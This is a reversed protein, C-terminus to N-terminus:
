AQSLWRWKDKLLCVKDGKCWAVVNHLLEDGHEQWWDNALDEVTPEPMGSKWGSHGLHFQRIRPFLESDDNWPGCNESNNAPCQTCHWHTM